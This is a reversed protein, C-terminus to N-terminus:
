RSRTIDAVGEVLREVEEMTTYCAAGARVLGDPAHGLKEVITTAYFDGNSVFLGREALALAVDASSHGQVTFAVTPTRPQGPPPGYLTVGRLAELGQWLRQLLAGGRAHLAAFSRELAARRGGGAGGLSALFDVAAAAGVMGEHNQTGTELRDPANEPAPLLKPVDLRELLTQRGFLVGIHPGYFKYASCALFDCDMARVDVLAHPAYHVADVFVLAGAARALRAARAVDTITGLANSAAGIAVLRTRPGLQRELDTLDLQGTEARVAVSRITVGRERELARWPAVNAHHDLETIVVEDGPGWARGLARALHFTLTTMNAGFAIEAPSANLFDAMAARAAIIAADTERSTPYLWHTNANHHYLYEAMAEVVGRPVQTGGPGDFYAVPQGRHERELAPFHGRIDDTTAAGWEDRTGLASDGTGLM